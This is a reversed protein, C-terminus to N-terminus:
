VVASRADTMMGTPLRELTKLWPDILKADAKAALERVRDSLPAMSEDSNQEPISAALGILDNVIYISSSKSSRSVLTAIASQSQAPLRPALAALQNLPPSSLPG